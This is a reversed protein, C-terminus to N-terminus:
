VLVKEESFFGTSDEEFNVGLVASGLVGMSFRVLGNSHWIVAEVLKVRQQFAWDCRMVGDDHDIASM